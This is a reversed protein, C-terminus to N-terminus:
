PGTLCFHTVRHSAVVQMIYTDLNIHLLLLLLHM